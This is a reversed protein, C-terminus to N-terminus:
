HSLCHSLRHRSTALQGAACRPSHPPSLCPGTQTTIPPGLARTALGIVFSWPSSCIRARRWGPAKGNARTQSSRPARTLVWLTCRWRCRSSGTSRTSPAPPRACAYSMCSSTAARRPCMSSSTCGMPAGAVRALWWVVWSAQRGRRGEEEAAAAAAGGCRYRSASGLPSTPRRTALAIAHVCPSLSRLAPLPRLRTAATCCSARNSTSHARSARSLWRRAM